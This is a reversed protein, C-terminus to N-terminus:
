SAAFSLEQRYVVEASTGRTSKIVAMPEFPLWDAGDQECVTVQGLRSRSWAALDPYNISNFKYHKGKDAYPPDIFWTADQNPIDGYSRQEVTWNRIGRLQLATRERARRGWVLQGRETRSSFETRVNRPQSTGRNIWFGIFWKAEQHIPLDSVKQGVELDPLTLIELEDARILYDWLGVIVPDIDYLRVCAAGYFVSYGASGAFPEIVIDYPKAYRKADRWKSGYYPFLPKLV